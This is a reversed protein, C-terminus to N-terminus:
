GTPNNLQAIAKKSRGCRKTLVVPLGIDRITKAEQPSLNDGLVLIRGFEKADSARIVEQTRFGAQEAAALVRGWKRRWMYM